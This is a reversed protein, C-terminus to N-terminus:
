EHARVDTGTGTTHVQAQRIIRMVMALRVGSHSVGARLADFADGLEVEGVEHVASMIGAPQHAPCTHRDIACRAGAGSFTALTETCLAHLAKTSCYEAHVGADSLARRMSVLSSIGAMRLERMGMLLTLALHCPLLRPATRHRSSPLVPPRRFHTAAADRYHAHGRVRLAPPPRHASAHLPPPHRHRHSLKLHPSRRYSPPPQPMLLQVNSRRPTMLREMVGDAKCGTSAHEEIDFAFPLLPSLAAAPATVAAFPGPDQTSANDSAEAPAGTAYRDDGIGETPVSAGAAATRLRNNESGYLWSPTPRTRPALHHRVARGRQVSQMMTAAVARARAEARTREAAALTAADM